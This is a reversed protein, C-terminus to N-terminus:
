IGGPHRLLPRVELVSMVEKVGPVTRAVRLLEFKLRESDVVGTIWVIGRVARVEVDVGHMALAAKVRGSLTLDNLEKESGPTPQYEPHKALYIVVDAATERSMHALNLVLGYLAPDRWDVNFLYRTRQLREEDV